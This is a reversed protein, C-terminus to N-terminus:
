QAEVAGDDAVSCLKHQMPFGRRGALIPITMCNYVTRGPLKGPGRFTGGMKWGLRWPVDRGETSVQYM